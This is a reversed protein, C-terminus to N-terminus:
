SSVTVGLCNLTGSRWKERPSFGQRGRIDVTLLAGTM